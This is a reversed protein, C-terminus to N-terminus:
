PLYVQFATFVSWRKAKPQTTNMCQAYGPWSTHYAVHHVNTVNEEYVAQFYPNQAACPGCSAQTFHEFLPYKKAQGFTTVSAMVLIAAMGLAYVKKM